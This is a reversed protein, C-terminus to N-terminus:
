RYKRSITEINELKFENTNKSYPLAQGFLENKISRIHKILSAINLRM